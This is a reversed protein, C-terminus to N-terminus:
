SPETQVIMPLYIPWYPVKITTLITGGDGVFWGQEPAVFSVGRLAFDSVDNEILVWNAGGDTTRMVLGRDGALWGNQADVFQVDQLDASVEM